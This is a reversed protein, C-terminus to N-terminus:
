KKQIKNQIEQIRETVHNLFADRNGNSRLAELQKLLLETNYSTTTDTDNKQKSDVGELIELVRLSVAAEKVAEEFASGLNEFTTM